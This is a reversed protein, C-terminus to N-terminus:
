NVSASDCTDNCNCGDQIVGEPVIIAIHNGTYPTGRCVMKVTKGDVQALRRGCSCVLWGDIVKVSKHEM